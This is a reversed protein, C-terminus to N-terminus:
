SSIFSHAFRPATPAQSKKKGLIYAVRNKLFLLYLSMVSADLPIGGAQRLNQRRSLPLYWQGHGQEGWEGVGEEGPPPCPLWGWFHQICASLHACSCVGWASVWHLWLGPPVAPVYASQGLEATHYYQERHSEPAGRGGHLSFSAPNLSGERICLCLPVGLHTSLCRYSLHKGKRLCLFFCGFVHNRFLKYFCDFCSGPLEGLLEWSATICFQRELSLSLSSCFMMPLM